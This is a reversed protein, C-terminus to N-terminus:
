RLQGKFNKFNIGGSKPQLLDPIMQMFIDLKQPHCYGRAFASYCDPTQYSTLLVDSNTPPMQWFKAEATLSYSHPLLMKLSIQSIQQCKSIRRKKKHKGDSSGYCKTIWTVNGSGTELHQVFVSCFSKKYVLASIDRSNVTWLLPCCISLWLCFHLILDSYLQQAKQFDYYM